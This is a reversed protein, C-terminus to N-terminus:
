KEKIVTKLDITVWRPGNEGEEYMVLQMKPLM